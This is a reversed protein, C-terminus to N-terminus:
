QSASFVQKLAEIQHRKSISAAFVHTGLARHMDHEALHLRREHNSKVTAKCPLRFPTRRITHRPLCHEHPKRPMGGHSPRNVHSEPHRINSAAGSLVVLPRSAEVHVERVALDRRHVGGVETGIEGLWELAFRGSRAAGARSRMCRLNM